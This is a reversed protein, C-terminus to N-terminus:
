VNGKLDSSVDTKLRKRKGELEHLADTEEEKKKM